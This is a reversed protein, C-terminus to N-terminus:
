IFKINKDKFLVILIFTLKCINKNKSLILRMICVHKKKFKEIKKKQCCFSISLFIM